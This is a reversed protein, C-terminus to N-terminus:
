AAATRRLVEDLLAERRKLDDRMRKRDTDAIEMRLDSLYSSLAARLAETEEESLPLNM